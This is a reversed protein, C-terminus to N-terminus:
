IENFLQTLGYAVKVIFLFEYRRLAVAANSKVNLPQSRDFDSVIQFRTDRLPAENKWISINFM